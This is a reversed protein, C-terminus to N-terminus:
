VLHSMSPLIIVGGVMDPTCYRALCPLASPMDLGFLAFGCVESFITSHLAQWAFCQFLM